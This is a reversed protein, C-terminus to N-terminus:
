FVYVHIGKSSAEELTRTHIPVTCRHFVVIFSLPVQLCSVFYM